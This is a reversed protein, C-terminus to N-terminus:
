DNGLITWIITITGDVRLTDANVGHDADDLTSSNLWVPIATASGDLPLPTSNASSEIANSTKATLDVDSKTCINQENGALDVGANVQASGVGISLDATDSYGDGTGTVCEISGLPYHQHAGLITVHGEPFTYLKLSTQAGNAGNDGSTMDVNLLTIITKHFAANGKEVVSLGSVTELTGVSDIVDGDIGGHLEDIDTVNTAIDSDNTAIQASGGYVTTTAM